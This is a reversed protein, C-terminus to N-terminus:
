VTDGANITSGTMGTHSAVYFTVRLFLLSLVPYTYKLMDCWLFKLIDTHVSWYLCEM